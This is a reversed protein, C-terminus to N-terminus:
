KNHSDLLTVSVIFSAVRLDSDSLHRFQKHLKNRSIPIESWNKKCIRTIKFGAKEFLTLMESYRIRNTYFGSKVFIDSEWILDSFRLNNLSESLHDRLDVEHTSIGTRKLIRALEELIPMLESKKIHELVAQSFIFDASNSPLERLSELGSTLYVAHCSQMLNEFSSLDVKINYGRESLFSYVLNYTAMNRTACDEVDVLFIKEAGLARAILASALSDGPGLELFVSNSLDETMSIHTAFVSYAYQPTRMGGKQFIPLLCSWTKHSIPLQSLCIKIIIKVYWPITRKMGSILKRLTRDTRM